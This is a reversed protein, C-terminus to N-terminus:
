YTELSDDIRKILSNNAFLSSDLRRMPATRSDRWLKMYREVLTDIPHEVIWRQEEIAEEIVEALKYKALVENAFETLKRKVSYPLEDPLDSYEMETGDTVSFEIDIGVEEFTSNVINGAEVVMAKSARVSSDPNSGYLTVFAMSQALFESRVSDAVKEWNSISDQVWVLRTKDAELQLSDNVGQLESRIKKLRVVEPSESCGYLGIFSAVVALLVIAVRGM